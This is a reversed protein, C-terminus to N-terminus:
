GRQVGRGDLRFAADIIKRVVARVEDKRETDGDKVLRLKFQPDEVRQVEFGEATFCAMVATVVAQDDPDVSNFTIEGNADVISGTEASARDCTIAINDDGCLRALVPNQFPDQTDPRHGTPKERRKPKTM